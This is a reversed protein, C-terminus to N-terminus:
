AARVIQYRVYGYLRRGATLSGVGLSRAATLPLRMSRVRSSGTSGPKDQYITTDGGVDDSEYLGIKSGTRSRLSVETVIIGYGAGPNPVVAALKGGVPAMRGCFGVFGSGQYQKGTEATYTIRLGGDPGTGTANRGGGEGGGPVDGQTADTELGITNDGGQGGNGSDADGGPGGAGAAIVATEGVTGNATEGAGGGGGGGFDRAGTGGNGGGHKTTGTSAAATGGLAGAITSATAGKKAVKSKFTADAGAATAYAEVTGPVVAVSTEVICAGGGGAGGDAHGGGGPGRLVYKTLSVVDAPVTWNGDGTLVDVTM